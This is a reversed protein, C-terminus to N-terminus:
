PIWINMVTNVLVRRQARVLELHLLDVSKQGLQTGNQYYIGVYKETESASM